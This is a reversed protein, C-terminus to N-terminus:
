GESLIFSVLCNKNVEILSVVVAYWQNLSATFYEVM